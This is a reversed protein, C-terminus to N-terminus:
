KRRRRRIRRLIADIDIESDDAARDQQRGRSGLLKVFLLSQLFDFNGPAKAPAAPQTPTLAGAAPTPAPPPLDANVASGLSNPPTLAGARRAAQAEQLILKIEEGSLYGAWTTGELLRPATNLLAGDAFNRWGFQYVWAAAARRPRARYENLWYTQSGRWGRFTWGDKADAYGAYFWSYAPANVDTGDATKYRQLTADSQYAQDYAVPNFPHKPSTAKAPDDGDFFTETGRRYFEEAALNYDSPIKEPPM